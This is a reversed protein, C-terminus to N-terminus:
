TICKLYESFSEHKLTDKDELLKLAAKKIEEDPLFMALAIAAHENDRSYPKEQLRKLLFSRSESGLAKLASLFAEETEFSDQGLAAFIHYIAKPNGIKALVTAAYGPARGYGPYLKNYFMSSDILKILADVAEDGNAVLADIETQPVDEESLILDSILTAITSSNKEDYVDRLKFYVDKAREIDEIMPSPLVKTALNEGVAKEAEALTAIRDIEFEENVGVNDDKYYSLMINFNGGFHVDRHMLIEIDTEDLLPIDM